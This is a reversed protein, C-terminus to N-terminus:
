KSEEGDGQEYEFYQLDGETRDDNAERFKPSWTSKIYSLVAIIQDDTLVDEYVPMNSEYDPDGIVAALGYKTIEFLLNEGHHWTHGTDNHPPALLMGDEDRKWWEEAQGELNAGHCSACNEAYIKQGSAIVGADDPLLRTYVGDLDAQAQVLAPLTLSIVLLPVLRM